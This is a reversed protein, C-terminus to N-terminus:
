LGEIAADVSLKGDIVAAVAAIIPADVNNRRALDAAVARRTRAKPSRRAPRRATRRAAAGEGLAM